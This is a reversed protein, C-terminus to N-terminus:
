CNQRGTYKPAIGGDNRTVLYLVFSSLWHAGAYDETFARKLSREAHARASREFAPAYRHGDLADALGALCWARSTNLGVLHLEVGDDSGPSVDVPELIGDYPPATVDPLFDKLWAEFASDELVRRMLDAEALAPSLFDWGLPEYELPYDEDDGFFTGATRTVATALGDNEIARAYDMAGTLAFASNDHTGVRSPREDTLFETEFLELIREELPRLLNRWETAREDDWLHLEAALRLLWAWGYPKEFTENDEFYAVEGEINDATLRADIADVVEAEAPHDFLRLARVLCWHSHVASHWDFCGHFAPHQEAPHAIDDMSDASGIWHPFETGICDLPHETVQAVSDPSLWDGRGAVVTEPDPGDLANM